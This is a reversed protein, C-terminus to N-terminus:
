VVLLGCNHSLVDTVNSDACNVLVCFALEIAYGKILGECVLEAPLIGLAWTELITKSVDALSVRQM